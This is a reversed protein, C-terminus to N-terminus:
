QIDSLTEQLCSFGQGASDNQAVLQSLAKVMERLYKLSVKMCTNIILPSWNISVEQILDVAVETLGLSSKGLPKM